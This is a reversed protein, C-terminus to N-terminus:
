MMDIIRDSEDYLEESIPAFSEEDFGTENIDIKEAVFQKESDKKFTYISIDEHNLIDQETYNFEDLFNEDVSNLRVFNNFQEIVYDSHTTLMVKLGKNVARVIYKVLIRQNKPHLHAEPEEIILLDDKKVVYKLYISLLAMEHISTSLMKSSVENNTGDDIFSIDNNIGNDKIDVLYGSFERDFECGLEYFEGKQTSDISYLKSLIDIQNKSFYSKDQIRRTLAKNDTVLDSREAILYYSNKLCIDKFISNVIMTLIILLLSNVDSLQTINFFISEINILLNSESDFALAIRGSNVIEAAPFSNARFEFDEGVTNILECDNIEIKFYSQTSNILDNLDLDFEEEIKLKFVDSLYGLVVGNIIPQIQSFPIKLPKSNLKPKTLVYNFIKENISEDNNELFDKLYAFLEEDINPVDNCNFCHILRAAFSKGSSNSGIFINLPAINIDANKIIGFNNIEINM